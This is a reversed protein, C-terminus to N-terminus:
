TSEPKRRQMKEKNELLKEWPRKRDKTPKGSFMESIDTAMSSGKMSKEARQQQSQLSTHRYHAVPTEVSVDFGTILTFCKAM